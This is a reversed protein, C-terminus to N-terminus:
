VINDYWAICTIGCWAEESSGHNSGTSTHCTSYSSRIKRKVARLLVAGCKGVPKEDTMEYVERWFKILRNEDTMEYRLLVERWMKVLRIEDILEYRLLVERLLKVLRNEDRCRM